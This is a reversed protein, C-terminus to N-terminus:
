HDAFEITATCLLSDPGDPAKCYKGWPAVDAADLGMFSGKEASPHNHAQWQPHVRQRDQKEFLAASIWSAAPKSLQAQERREQLIALFRDLM